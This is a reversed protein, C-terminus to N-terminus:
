FNTKKDILFFYKITDTYDSVSACHVLVREGREISDHVFGVCDEMVELINASPHDLIDVQFHIIECPKGHEFVDLGRAVTLVNTIEHAALGFIDQASSLSGVYLQDTIADADWADRKLCVAAM